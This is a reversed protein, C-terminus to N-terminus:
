GDGSFHFMGIIRSVVVVERKESKACGEVEGVDFIKMYCRGAQGCHILSRSGIHTADDRIILKVNNTQM